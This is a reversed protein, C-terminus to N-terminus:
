LMTCAGNEYRHGEPCCYRKGDVESEQGDCICDDILYGTQPCYGAAACQKQYAQKCETGGLQCYTGCLKGNYYCSYYTTSAPSKPLCSIGTNEDLCGWYNEESVRAFKMGAATCKGSECMGYYIRFPTENAYSKGCRSDDSKIYCKQEKNGQDASCYYTSTECHKSTSNYTFGNPCEFDNCDACNLPDTCDTGCVYGNRFCTWKDLSPVCLLDNDFLCAGHYSAQDGWHTFTGGKQQCPDEDCTGSTFILDGSTDKKAEACQVGGKYCKYIGAKAIMYCTVDSSYEKKCGRYYYPFGHYVLPEGSPCDEARCFGNTCNLGTAECNEGCMQDDIYCTFTNGTTGGRCDFKECVGDVLTFGADPCECSGNRLVLQTGNVTPCVCESPNTASPVLNTEVGGLLATGCCKSQDSSCFPTECCKDACCFKDKDCCTSTGCVQQTDWNDCLNEDVCRGNICTQGESCCKNKNCCREPPCNSPCTEDMNFIFQMQNKDQCETTDEGDLRILYQNDARRIVADCVGKQVEFVNIAFAYEEGVQEASMDYLITKQFESIDISGDSEVLIEEHQLVVAAALRVNNLIENAKLNDMAYKFGLLAAISLMGMILLVALIELMSRGTQNIKNNCQNNKM